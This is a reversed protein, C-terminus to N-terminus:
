GPRVRVCCYGEGPELFASRDDGAGAIMGEVLALNLACITQRDEDALAHFPCNRFRVEGAREVPEYGNAPLAADLGGKGLVEGTRRAAGSLRDLRGDGARAHGTAGDGAMAELLIRAALLYRRPPLTVDHQVDSRQYLKAPRGAGPGTRGSLRLYTVDLLGEDALRDLHYAATQRAVGVAEAAEDRGVPHDADVVTQYLARRVGDALAGIAEIGETDRSRM